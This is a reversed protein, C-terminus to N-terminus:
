VKTEKWSETKQGLRQKGLDVFHKTTKRGFM